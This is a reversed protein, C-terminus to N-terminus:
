TYKYTYNFRKLLYVGTVLLLIVSLFLIPNIHHVQVTPYGIGPQWRTTDQTSLLINKM